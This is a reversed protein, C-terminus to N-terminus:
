VMALSEGCYFEKGECENWIKVDPNRIWYRASQIKGQRMLRLFKRIHKKSTDSYKNLDFMSHYRGCDISIRVRIWGKNKMRKLFESRACCETGRGEGHKKYIRDLYKETLGFLEPNSDILDIHRHPVAVIKGEPSIFYANFCM